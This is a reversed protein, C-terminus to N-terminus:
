FELRLAYQLRRGLNGLRHANTRGFDSSTVSMNPNAWVMQNLANYAELRFELRTGGPLSVRKSVVADLNSFTPGTLSGYQWPNSRRTYAPLRDFGSTDFWLEDSGTGGIKRVSEPALMGDFRLFEGSRYWYTGSLQWGGLVLDLANPMDALFRRDRGVPIELSASAVVRHRPSTSEQWTLVRDYTDVEDYFQESKERNYAYSLLFVVGNHFPRQLRFQFSQFRYRAGVDSSTQAIDGYQPYPRLLTGLSVTPQRRLEGPFTDESGYNFFPNPVDQDLEGQYTYALRPDMMNLPLTLLNRRAFNMLYTVDVVTRGWIERQVSLTIRDSIPPRREYQDITVNDGLSTFRGFAKGVIPTLGQPFPDSLFAQPRGESLPLGNTIPAFGSGLDYQGLPENGSDTLAPPTYFRGFGVRIATKDDLRYALGVRPMLQLPDSSTARTNDEETYYFAGNYIHSNQRTSEAMLQAVAKGTNGAPTSAMIPAIAEQMGPIPDHLDLRQPLRYQSDWYGGEYEYRLGLNLTLKSNIKFDDQVYLAYMETNAEQLPIFQTSTPLGRVAEDPTMAGLLFDAWP